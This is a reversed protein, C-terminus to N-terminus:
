KVKKHCSCQWNCVYEAMVFVISNNRHRKQGSNSLLLIIKSFAHIRNKDRLIVINETPVAKFSKGAYM